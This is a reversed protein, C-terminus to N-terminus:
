VKLKSIHSQNISIIVIDKHNVKYITQMRKENNNLLNGEIKKRFLTGFCKECSKM